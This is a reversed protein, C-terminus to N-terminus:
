NLLFMQIYRPDLDKLLVQGYASEMEAFLDELCQGLKSTIEFPDLGCKKSVWNLFSEKMSISINDPKPKMSDSEDSGSCATHSREPFLEAFFRKFEGFDISVPIESKDPLDLYDKVWLTLLLNKYTMFGSSLPKLKIEMMSFLDDLAIISSLIRETEDIDDPCAFERYLVGTKYNDFFLPKKVLLGGLVGLWEEDWFSLPLENQMFWSQVLWNEARRKVKSVVGYGARFIDSLHFRRILEAGQSLDPKESNEILRQLGISLFGCAKKVVDRLEECSRIKKQDATIIQNCLGAFETQIQHLLDDTEIVKLSGAFYDDTEMMKEPYLLPRPMNHWEYPNSIYKKGSNKIQRDSLPQYIGIAEDFPLFGKEALRVNRLRYAEEEFESPNVALSEHLIQQYRVHDVGAFRDLVKKLFFRRFEKTKRDTEPDFPYDVFRIYYTDDYTFFDDGFSSPDQDHERIKVEINKFLYFEIFETKEYLLWKSLRDPDAQLFLDFWQAVSQIKIRDKDWIEMDLIYDWQRASALQLLPLSDELGIDYIFFYFDQEPFSHVLAAPQHMELICDLAKEPPLSIIRRRTELLNQARQIAQKLQPDENM